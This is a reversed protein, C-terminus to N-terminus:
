GDLSHNHQGEQLQQLKKQLEQACGSLDMYHLTSYINELDVESRQCWLRLMQYQRELYSSGAELEVREMQDDSVSLLRLFEKWRRVPVENIIAYLVTAPWREKQVEFKTLGPSLPDMNNSACGIYNENFSSIGKPDRNEILPTTINGMAQHEPARRAEPDWSLNGSLNGLCYSELLGIDDSKGPTQVHPLIGVHKKCLLSCIKKKGRAWCILLVALPILLMLLIPLIIVHELRWTGSEDKKECFSKCSKHNCQNNPCPQCKGKSDLYQGHECSVNKCTDKCEPCMSCNQCMKCDKCSFDDLLGALRYRYYGKKCGCERDRQPTWENLYIKNMAPDCRRCPLCEALTNKRDLYFHPACKKCIKSRGSAMYCGPPCQGDMIQCEDLGYGTQCLFAAILAGALVYVMPSMTMTLHHKFKWPGHAPDRVVIVNSKSPQPCLSSALPNKTSTCLESWLM